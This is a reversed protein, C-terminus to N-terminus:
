LRSAVTCVSRGGFFGNLFSSKLDFQYIKWKNHAIISSVSCITDFRAVPSLKLLILVKRKCTNEQLWGQKTSKFRDM